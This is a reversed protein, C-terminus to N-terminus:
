SPTSVFLLRFRDWGMQLRSAHNRLTGRYGHVEAAHNNYPVRMRDEVGVLPEAQFKLDVGEYPPAGRICRDSRRQVVPLDKSRYRCSRAAQRSPADLRSTRRARDYAARDYATRHPSSGRHLYPDRQNSM